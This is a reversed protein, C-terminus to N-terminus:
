IGRWLRVFKELFEQRRQMVQALGAFDWQNAPKERMVRLAKLFEKEPVNTEYAWELKRAYKQISKSIM